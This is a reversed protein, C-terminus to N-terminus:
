NEKLMKIITKVFQDIKKSQKKNYGGYIDICAIKFKKDLSLEDISENWTQKKDRFDYPLKTHKTM